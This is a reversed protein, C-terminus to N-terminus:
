TTDEHDPKGSETGTTLPEAAPTESADVSPAFPEEERMQMAVERAERRERRMDATSTRMWLMREADSLADWAPAPIYFIGGSEAMVRKLRMPVLPNLIMETSMGLRSVEHSFRRVVASQFCPKRLGEWFEEIYSAMREALLRPDVKRSAHQARSLAQVRQNAEIQDLRGAITELQKNVRLLLDYLDIKPNTHSPQTM